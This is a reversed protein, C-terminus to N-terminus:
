PVSAFISQPLDGAPDPAGEDAWPKRWEPAEFPDAFYITERRVKDGRFEVVQVFHIPEGGDYRIRGEGLWVDGAGRIERPEFTLRAEYRV